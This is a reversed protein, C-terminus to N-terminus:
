GPTKFRLSTIEAVAAIEVLLAPDYLAAVQVTTTVPYPPKFIAGRIDGAAMFAAIDTTYQTLSVIDRMEGGFAALVASINELVQTLQARMDGPGVIKGLRDLAVQGKLHVVKGDGHVAALSFPGFPQWVAPPNFFTPGFSHVPDDWTEHNDRFSGEVARATWGHWVDDRQLVAEAEVEGVMYITVTQGDKPGGPIGALDRLSKDLWLGYRGDPTGENMDFYVRHM